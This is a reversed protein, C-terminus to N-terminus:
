TIPSSNNTFSSKSSLRSWSNSECKMKAKMYFQKPLRIDLHKGKFAIMSSVNKTIPENNVCTQSRNMSSVHKTIQECTIISYRSPPDNVSTTVSVHISSPCIDATHLSTFASSIQYVTCVKNFILSIIQLQFALLDTM